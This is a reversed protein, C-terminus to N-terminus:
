FRLFHGKSLILGQFHSKIAKFVTRSRLYVLPLARCLGSKAQLQQSPTIDPFFTAKKSDSILAQLMWLKRLVNREIMSGQVQVKKCLFHRHKLKLMLICSYWLPRWLMDEATCLSLAGVLILRGRDKRVIGPLTFKWFPRRLSPNKLKLVCLFPTFYLIKHMHIYRVRPLISIKKWLLFVKRLVDLWFFRFM